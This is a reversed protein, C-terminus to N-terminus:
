LEFTQSLCHIVNADLATTVEDDNHKSEMLLGLAELYLALEKMLPIFCLSLEEGECACVHVCWVCVVCVCVGCVCVCVCVCM